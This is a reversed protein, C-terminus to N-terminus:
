QLRRGDREVEVLPELWIMGRTGNRTIRAEPLAQALARAVEDAGMARAAANLFMDPTYSWVKGIDHLLGAAICLDREHSELAAQGAM